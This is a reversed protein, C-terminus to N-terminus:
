PNPPNTSPPNTSPPNPILPATSTMSDEVM